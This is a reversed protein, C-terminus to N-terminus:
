EHRQLEKREEKKKKLPTMSSYCTGHYINRITRLIFAFKQQLEHLLKTQCKPWTYLSHRVLCLPSAQLKYYVQDNTM